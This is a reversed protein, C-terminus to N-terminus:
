MHRNYQALLVQLTEDELTALVPLTAVIMEPSLEQLDEQDRILEILQVEM